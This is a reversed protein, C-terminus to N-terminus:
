PHIAAFSTHSTSYSGTVPIAAAATAAPLSLSAFTLDTPATPTTPNIAVAQNVLMRAKGLEAQLFDREVKMEMAVKTVNSLQQQMNVYGLHASSLRQQSDHKTSDLEHKTSNLKQQTSILKHQLDSARDMLITREKNHEIQLISNAQEASDLRATLSAKDAQLAQIAIAESSIRTNAKYLESRLHMVLKEYNNTTPNNVSDTSVTANPPSSVITTSPAPDRDDGLISVVKEYQEIRRQLKLNQDRISIYQEVIFSVDDDRGTSY